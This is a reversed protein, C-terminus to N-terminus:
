EAKEISEAGVTVSRDLTADGYTAKTTKSYTLGTAACGSFMNICLMAVALIIINRM